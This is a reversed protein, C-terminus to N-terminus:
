YFWPCSHIRHALWFHSTHIGGKSLWYGHVGKKGCVWKWFHGCRCTTFKHWGFTFVQLRIWNVANLMLNLIEPQYAMMKLDIMRATEDHTTLNYIVKLGVYLWIYGIYLQQSIVLSIIFLSGNSFPPLLFFYVTNESKFCVPQGKFLM